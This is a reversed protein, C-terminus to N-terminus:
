PRRYWRPDEGVEISHKGSVNYGSSLTGFDASYVVYIYPLFGNGLRQRPVLNPAFVGAYNEGGIEYLVLQADPNGVAAHLDSLYQRRTTGYAWHEDETVRQALHVFASDDDRRVKRGMYELNRKSPMVRIRNRFPAHELHDLIDNVDKSAPAHDGAIIGRMLRDIPDDSHGGSGRRSGGSSAMKSRGRGDWARCLPFSTIGVSEIEFCGDDSADEFM